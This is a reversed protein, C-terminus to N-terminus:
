ASIRQAHHAEFVAVYGTVLKVALGGWAAKPEVLHQRGPLLIDAADHRLAQAQECRIPRGKGAELGHITRIAEPSAGVEDALACFSGGAVVLTVHGRNRERRRQAVPDA